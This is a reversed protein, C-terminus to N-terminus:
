PATPAPATGVRTGPEEKGELFDITGQLVKNWSETRGLGHGEQLLVEYEVPIKLEQLRKVYNDMEAKVTRVDNEAQYVKLPTKVKDAHFYPSREEYLAKDKVPDGVEKLFESQWSPDPPISKMFTFLNALAVIAVAKKFETPYQSIASLTSFGGFSAGVIYIRSPDVYPLKAIAQKGWIVDKIHGGGWDKDNLTEFKKGYGASGRFNPAFVVYGNLAWFQFIPRFRHQEHSDPGGHPWVIVPRKEAGKTWEEKAVILSHIELGDFSPYRFDFSQAFESKALGSQNFESVQQLQGAKGAVLDVRFLDGPDNSRSIRLIVQRKGPVFGLPGVVAKDPLPLELEKGLVGEFFRVSETGDFSEFVSSVKAVRDYGCGVDKKEDRRVWEIKSPTALAVRACGARDSEHDTNVYLYPEKPHFFSPAYVTAPAKLIERTKRTSLNLLHVQTENNGLARFLAIANDKGNVVGGDFSIKGDTVPHFRGSRVDLRYIRYTEKKEHNSRVFLHQGQSSFDLITAKAGDHGFIKKVTKKDPDFLHIQTNEDGNNDLMLYFRKAVPDRDLASIHRGADYIATLARTKHDLRYVKGYADGPLNMIMLSADGGKLPFIDGLPRLVKQFQEFPVRPQGTAATPTAAAATTTGTPAADKSATKCGAVFAFIILAALAGTRIIDTM